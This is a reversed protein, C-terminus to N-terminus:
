SQVQLAATLADRLRQGAYMMRRAKYKDDACRCGGNTHMGIPRAVVCGGDTCGDTGERITDYDALLARIADEGLALTPSPTARSYAYEISWGNTREGEPPVPFRKIDSWLLPDNQPNALRWAVVEGTPAAPAAWKPEASLADVIARALDGSISIRDVAFRRECLVYWEDAVPMLADPLMDDVAGPEATPPTPVKPPHLGAIIRKYDVNPSMPDFWRGEPKPEIMDAHPIHEVRIVGMGEYRRCLRGESALKASAILTKASGRVREVEAELEAIRDLLGPLANVAGVILAANRVALGDPCDVTTAVSVFHMRGEDPGDVDGIIEDRAYDNLPQWPTATGNALLVRLEDINTNM